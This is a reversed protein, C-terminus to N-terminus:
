LSDRLKGLTEATFQARAMNQPSRRPGPPPLTMGALAQLYPATNQAWRDAGANIGSVYRTTGLDVARRVYHAGGSKRVGKGFRKKGISEQVGQEYAAEANTTNTEWDQAAGEVGAKYDNQAAGARTKFKAALEPTARMRIGM